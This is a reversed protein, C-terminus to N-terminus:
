VYIEMKLGIGGKQGIGIFANIVQTSESLVLPLSHHPKPALINLIQADCSLSGYIAVANSKHTLFQAVTIVQLRDGSEIGTRMHESQYAHFVEGDTIDGNAITCVPRYMEHPAVTGVDLADMKQVIQLYAIAVANVEVM